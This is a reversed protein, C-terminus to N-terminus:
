IKKLITLTTTLLTQESEHSHLKMSAMEMAKQWTKIAQLHLTQLDLKHEGGGWGGKRVENM